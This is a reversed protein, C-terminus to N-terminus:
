KFMLCIAGSVILGIGICGMLTIGEKFVLIGIAFALILGIGEGVFNVVIFSPAQKVALPFAWGTICINVVMYIAYTNLTLGYKRMFVSSIGLGLWGLVLFLAWM